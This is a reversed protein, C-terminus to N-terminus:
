CTKKIIIEKNLLILEKIENQYNRSYDLWRRFLDKSQEETAEQFNFNERKGFAVIEKAINTQSTTM